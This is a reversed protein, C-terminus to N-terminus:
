VSTIKFLILKLIVIFHKPRLTLILELIRFCVEVSQCMHSNIKHLIIQADFNDLQMLLVKWLQDNFQNVLFNWIITCLMDTDSQISMMWKNSNQEKYNEKLCYLKKFSMKETVKFENKWESVDGAELCLWFKKIFMLDWWSIRFKSLYVFFLVYLILKKSTLHVCFKQM